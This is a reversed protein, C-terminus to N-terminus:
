FTMRGRLAQVAILRLRSVGAHRATWHVGMRVLDLM